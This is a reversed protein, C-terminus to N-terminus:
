STTHQKLPQHSSPQYSDSFFLSPLNSSPVSPSLSSGVYTTRRENGEFTIEHEIRRRVDRILHHLDMLSLKTKLSVRDRLEDLLCRPLSCCVYGDFVEEVGRRVREGVDKWGVHLLWWSLTLYKNELEESINCEDGEEERVKVGSILDELGKSGGLVINSM